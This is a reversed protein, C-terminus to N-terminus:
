GNGMMQNALGLLKEARVRFTHGHAIEMGAASLERREDDHVLYHHILRNLDDGDRYQPVTGAMFRGLGKARDSICFGGSALVDLVRFSLFGERAMTKHHDNLSIATGMYLDPLREYPWYRGAYWSADFGERSLWKCGIVMPRYGRPRLDRIVERGFPLGGRANGVFVVSYDYPPKKSPPRMDTCVELTDVTPGLDVLGSAFSPSLCLLLDYKKAEEETMKEPHSHFWCVNFSRPNYFFPYHDKMPFPSGFLYVTIDAMEPFVEVTHGMDLFAQELRKKVWWDGWCEFTSCDTEAWTRVNIALGKINRSNKRTQAIRAESVQRQLRQREQKVASNRFANPTKSLREVLADLADDAETRESLPKGVFQKSSVDGPVPGGNAFNKSSNPM